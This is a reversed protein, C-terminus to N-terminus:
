DRKKEFVVSVGNLIKKLIFKVEITKYRASYHGLM